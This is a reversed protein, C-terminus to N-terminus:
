RGAAGPPLAFAVYTGGSSLAGDPRRPPAKGGGAPVVLFQRGDVQYTSPTGIGAFPLRAEWLRAGTSKDFARVTDDFATAAIFVLGGATVVPGGYNESGTDRLGQAALEPYEGLPVQWAHEGTNLDIATLTGWPPAVAPYGDPDLFKRYGTFRYALATGSTATSPPELEARGTRLYGVVAAIAEPALGSFGPMRGAGQRIIAGLQDTSRREAVGVLSPIQPPAGQRDDRHCTACERAYIQAGGGGTEVPALGGTWAMENANVYLLGTEPDFASGGWEAGGDFGPFVVTQSGVGFPVFPGGGRFGRFAERVARGAEPTRTTLVSETLAQRAFPAPRTPLPQTAATREGDVTSAPFRREAIPFLSRGTRRDFVFVHGHKTTQAVADIRRGNRTVTVLSPPAPFDRDWVDHRVAQFHWIRKGTAADLALLSNAFLNDGLRNAGYFDASASGTPAFVIGRDVDVAMGAWNNAGGTYTWAVAPWTRHGFQGPQPITHFTWRLAGTRVDYARISGPSAPLGESVRGGVVLLDRYVIGPTTLLVSQTAPDRGLGERLDVRGDRGFSTVPQGTRPDLAFVFPGQGTFLRAERTIQTDGRGLSTGSGSAWYTVGRNPGRGEIGSDFTWRRAGTAADLAVVRHSPTTTYLVGAVVIPNTQLGGSEGSDFTWAVELQRVNTRGIQTLNSYRIQEPGGGYVSWESYRDASRGTARGQLTGAHGTTLAVLVSVLVTLATKAIQHGSSM